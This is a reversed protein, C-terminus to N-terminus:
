MVTAPELPSQQRLPVGSHDTGAEERGDCEGGAGGRFYDLQSVHLTM